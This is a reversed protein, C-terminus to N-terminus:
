DRSDVNWDWLLYGHDAVAKKYEPTMYPASGYPTRILLSDLGTISKLTSRTQDM